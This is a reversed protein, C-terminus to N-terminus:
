EEDFFGLAELKEYIAQADEKRKLGSYVNYLNSLVVTDDPKIEYAKEIYKVAEDLLGKGKEVLQKGEKDYTKLDMANAKNVLEAYENYHLVAVNVYNDVYDPAMEIGKKYTEIANDRDEAKEYLYGLNFYLNGNTPDSEIAKQLMPLAEDMRETILLLNILEKGLDTDNPYKEYAVKAIDLAGELDEQLGRKLYIMRYYLTVDESGKELTMNYYEFAKDYNKIQQASIAGYLWGLTDEPAFAQFKEYEALAGAYDNQNQSLEYANNLLTNKVNTMSQSAGFVIPDTESGMEMVKKYSEGSVKLAELPDVIPEESTAIASYIEAHYYWTDKKDMTKEYEIARDIIAKAEALEGNELALKAKAVKPPKEKKQGYTAACVTIMLFFLVIRKM